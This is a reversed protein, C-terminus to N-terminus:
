ASLREAIDSSPTRRLLGITVPWPSIWDGGMCYGSIAAYVPAPFEAVLQMLEQGARAFEYAFPGTLAAIENLDAGASFFRETGTVILPCNRASLKGIADTLAVVTRRSLRNTGDESHLSLIRAGQQDEIEFTTTMPAPNHKGSSGNQWAVVM